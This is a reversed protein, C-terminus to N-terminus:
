KQSQPEATRQASQQLQERKQGHEHEALESQELAKKEHDSLRKAAEPKPVASDLTNTATKTPM